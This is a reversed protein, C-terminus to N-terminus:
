SVSVLDVVFVLTENPGVPGNGSPGYGLAPPIVIERRGGVKMGTIGQAFGPVVQALPFSTPQGRSWSSDFVKGDAFNAGVYEVNVTSTQAAVTGTGVVLDRTVLASPPSGTGASIVPATKLDTANAVAPPGGAAAAASSAAATTPPTSKNSSSCAVATLTLAVALAGIVPPRPV